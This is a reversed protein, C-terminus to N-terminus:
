VAREDRARVVIDRLTAELRDFDLPKSLFGYFGDARARAEVSADAFATCAVVPISRLEARSQLLRFFEFGDIDPMMLDLLVLDPPESAMELGAVFGTNATVVQVQDSDRLTESVLLLFDPEDDIVLVRLSSAAGQVLMPPISAGRSRAFVALDARAIRRHGGATRHAPLKGVDVWNAVTSVTVGFMVAVQHTTFFSHQNPDDASM